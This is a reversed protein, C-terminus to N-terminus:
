DDGRNTADAIATATLKVTVVVDTGRVKSTLTKGVDDALLKLRPQNAALLPLLLNRLNNFVNNVEEEFDQATSVDKMGLTAEVTIADTVKVGVGYTKAGALGKGLREANAGPINALGPVNTLKGEILGCSFMSAKEDQRQLLAAMERKVAAKQVGKEAIGLANTVLKKDNGGIITKEDAVTAFFPKPQNRDTFQILKYRGEEVISVKDGENQSTKVATNFLKEPNFNGRVVILVGMDEPGSGWTAVTVKELDKLPDLGLDKIVEAAKEKELAQKAPGLAFKKSMESDLLQRLNVHMVNETEAPLLPDVDAARGYVALAVLAAGTLLRRIM